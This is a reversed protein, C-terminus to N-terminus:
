TVSFIPVLALRNCIETPFDFLELRVIKVCTCVQYDRSKSQVRYVSRELVKVM